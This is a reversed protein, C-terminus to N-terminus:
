TRYLKGVKRGKRIADQSNHYHTGLWLHEPNVCGPNDCSHCIIIGTKRGRPLKVGNAMEFSVRHAQCHKGAINIQGYGARNKGGTWEWCGYGIVPIDVKEWFSEM